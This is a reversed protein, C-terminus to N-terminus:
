DSPKFGMYGYWLPETFSTLCSKVVYRPHFSCVIKVSNQLSLLPTLVSKFIISCSLSIRKLLISTPGSTKPLSDKEKLAQSKTQENIFSM